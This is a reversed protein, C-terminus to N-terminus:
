RDTAAQLAGVKFLRRVEEELLVSGYTYPDVVLRYVATKVCCWCVVIHLELEFCRAM